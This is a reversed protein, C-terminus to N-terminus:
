HRPILKWPKPFWAWHDDIWVLGDYRMGKEKGPAHFVWTAWAVNPRLYPALHGYAEPFERLHPGQEGFDQSLAVSVRLQTQGGSAKITLGKAWMADLGSEIANAVEPVFIKAADGPQPKLRDTLARRDREPDLHPALVLRAESEVGRRKAVAQLKPDKSHELTVRELLQMMQDFGPPGQLLQGGLVREQMDVVLALVAARRREGDEDVLLFHLVRDSGADVSALVNFWGPFQSTMGGLVPQLPEGIKVADLLMLASKPTLTFGNVAWTMLADPGEFLRYEAVEDGPGRRLLLMAGEEHRMLRRNTDDTVVRWDRVLMADFDAIRAPTSPVLAREQSSLALKGPPVAMKELDFPVAIQGALAVRDLLELLEASELGLSLRLELAERLALSIEVLYAAGILDTRAPVSSILAWSLQEVQERTVQLYAGEADEFQFVQSWRVEGNASLIWEEVGEKVVERKLHRPNVGALRSVCNAELRNRVPLPTSM